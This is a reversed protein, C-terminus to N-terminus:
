VITGRCRVAGCYCTKHMGSMTGEGGSEDSGSAAASADYEPSYDITLEKQPPINKRAVFVLRGLGVGPPCDVVATYVQLAPDCSHNLFRTWNGCDTSDVSYRPYDGDIHEDVDIDFIYDSHNEDLDDVAERKIIRRCFRVVWLLADIADFAV